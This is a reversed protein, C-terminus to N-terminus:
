ANAPVKLHLMAGGYKAGFRGPVFDGAKHMYIHYSEIGTTNFKM